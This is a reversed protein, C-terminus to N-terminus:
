IKIQQLAPYLQKYLQFQKIYVAHTASDPEFVKSTTIFQKVEDLSKIFCMAYMGMFAAGLASADAVENLIINKGFMDALLQMWFASQTIIGSVYVSHIGPNDEEIAELIHLLSFSIGEIVARAFHAKSHNIRLGYFMGCASEDWIPAREGLLYPLFCLGDAGATVTAAITMLKEFNNNESLSMQLFQEAFWQLVIGGNNIPGGTVYIKDTLLYRFLGNGKPVIEQGGKPSPPKPMTLRVAGSTGVTLVAIDNTLAGCGLNALCGDNGGAIFSITANTSLATKIEPLLATEIYTAAVVTSLKSADIGALQLSPHYWCHDHVNYLGTASAIGEDVIYKGFFKYFIYEKISIFKAASKFVEPNEHQLWLLKCLPSMAHIPTGTYAYINKGEETARLQQAYAKSRTDAWTIANILPKGDKSVAILSHMAASFTINYNNESKHHAILGKILDLIKNFLSDADQEFQGENNTISEVPSSLKCTVTGNEDVAIAKCNTTGIDIAFFHKM